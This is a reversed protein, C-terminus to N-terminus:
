IENRVIMSEVMGILVLSIVLFSGGYSLFPLSIGTVPVLGINMGINIMIQVFFLASVGLIFFAGFDDKASILKAARILRYFIISWFFLILGVGLFGLEEAIVAFIFDTESAPIFKLQSQSGFGLGRGFFQGAGVATVAQRVHYGRGYPDAQPDFFSLIRDKQYPQFVFFWAVVAMVGFLVGTTILHKKNVKSFFLMFMWIFILIIGSGFDPQLMVLMFFLGTAGASILFNKFQRVDSGRTSFFWALFIILVVKALEVPQFNVGLVSFWGTTGSVTVGFFLVLLLLIIVGAYLFYSFDRWLRYDFFSIVFILSIGIVAFVIQKQFNVWNPEDSSIAISYIAALGFCILLVCAGFLVWDFNKLIGSFRKLVM